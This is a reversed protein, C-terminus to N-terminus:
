MRCLRLSHEVFSFLAIYFRDVAVLYRLSLVEVRLLQQLQRPVSECFQHQNQSHAPEPVAHAPHQRGHAHRSQLSHRPTLFTLQIATFLSVTMFTLQIATFLSVTVFTLQVVAFLSVTVLMLYVVTFLSVTVFTLHVVTFLSVTM